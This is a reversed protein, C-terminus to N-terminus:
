QFQAVLQKTSKAIDFACQIVQQTVFSQHLPEKQSRMILIRCETEFHNAADTLTALSEYVAENALYGDEEKDPDTPVTTGPFLSVMDTVARVIRESCPIFADFKEDKASILLEQICRTIAETRRVVEEQSPLNNETINSGGGIVAYEYSPPQQPLSYHLGTGGVGGGSPGNKNGPNINPDYDYNGVYTGDYPSFTSLSNQSPMSGQISSQPPMPVVNPRGAYPGRQQLTMYNSGGTNPLSTPGGVSGNSAITGSSSSGAASGTRSQPRPVEYMSVTGTRIPPPPPPQKPGPSGRTNNSQQNLIDNSTSSLPVTSISNPAVTSLSSINNNNYQGQSYQQMHPSGKPCNSLASSSLSTNTTSVMRLNANEGVLLNVTQTLKAIETRMDDNSDILAQVKQESHDLQTKLQKFESSFGTLNGGSLRQQNNASNCHSPLNSNANTGMHATSASGASTGVSSNSKAPSSNSSGITSQRSMLSGSPPRKAITGSGSGSGRNSSTSNNGHTDEKSKSSDEREEEEPIHYYDDDSAVYDYIPEEDSLGSMTKLSALPLSKTNLGMKARITPGTERLPSKNLVTLTPPFNTNIESQRRRIEKLVDTVLM